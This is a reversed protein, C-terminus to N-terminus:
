LRTSRSTWLPSSDDIWQRGPTSRWRPGSDSPLGFFRPTVPRAGELHSVVRGVCRRRESTVDVGDDRLDRRPRNAASQGPAHGVLIRRLLSRLQLSVGPTSRSGGDLRFATLSERPLVVTLATTRDDCRYVALWSVFPVVGFTGRNHVLFDGRLQEPLWQKVERLLTDRFITSARTSRGIPECEGVLRTARSADGGKGENKAVLTVVLPATEPVTPRVGNM